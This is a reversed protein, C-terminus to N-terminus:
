GIVRMIIAFVVFAGTLSYAIPWAFSGQGDRESSRGEYDRGNPVHWGFHGNHSNPGMPENFWERQPGPTPAHGRGETPGKRGSETRRASDLDLLEAWDNNGHFAYAM